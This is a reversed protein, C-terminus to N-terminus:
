AAHNMCMPPLFAQVLLNCRCQRGHHSCVSFYSFCLESLLCPNCAQGENGGRCLFPCTAQSHPMFALLGHRTNPMDSLTHTPFLICSLLQLAQLMCKLADLLLKETAQMVNRPSLQELLRRTGNGRRLLTKHKCCALLFIVGAAAQISRRVLSFSLHHFSDPPSEIAVFYVPLSSVAPSIVSFTNSVHLACAGTVPHVGTGIQAQECHM